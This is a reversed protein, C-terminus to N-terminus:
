ANAAGDTDGGTDGATDGDGGDAASGPRGPAFGCTFRHTGHRVRRSTGDPLVVDGEAGVPVTVTTELEGGSLRWAASARGYPTDHHAEAWTLSGGPEPRFRIRRYGPGAPAIGAVVRHLWDAVSGLAYHNFSTMSSTNLAGDPRLSDWREWVTTGGALVTYLWSPCETCQLLLYAEETHGGMSLADAVAPTGAFGTSIRGGAERVLEALRATGARRAGDDPWLGFVTTLAYATQTDDKPRGDPLFERAYAAAVEDGLARYRAADAHEGVADAIAATRRATHAFYATAVLYKDTTAEFPNEPPANPDLWDGLQETGRCIRDGGAARAVHELHARASDYQAHLVGRDGTREHLVDPTLVAADSWVAYPDKPMSRFPELPFYPVWPPVWDQEAQEAALDRLWSSLMGATDYLFAATPAFVQIDGTWGLREDRQPCDTPIDVFNSRLSWVVNEHLRNVLGDSCEFWGTRRMDTHLVRSVVDDPGLGGEWGSVEAYRYGHVTFRPEWEIPEGSLVLEDTARAERLPGTAPEGDVLIEAHRMRVVAGRPGRARVRLRGSHNQGFDIIFRGEGKDVIGVPRLEEVCRVPPGQPAVLPVGPPGEVRVPSWSGGDHGPRSWDPDHLRADFREGDYLGSSLIPGYGATWSGDTAVTVVGGDATVAELQALAALRDGYVDLTGGGFGLRGRWWGDGLWIGIANRGPRVHETVDFAAYRLRHRYSTWGPTLEEDGARRGNVEAEALGHGTLYLRARVVGVPLTFERRLRAPRRLAAAEEEWAPGILEARWDAPDLLGAEIRGPESWPGWDRDRVRVRVSARERSRLPRAPWPVLVQEAGGLEHTTVEETGDPSTLVVELRAARQRYDPDAAPVTWSVRPAPEGTGLRGPAHHEFSPASPRPAM